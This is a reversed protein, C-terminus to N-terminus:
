SQENIRDNTTAGVGGPVPPGQDNGFASFHVSLPMAPAKLPRGPTQGLM